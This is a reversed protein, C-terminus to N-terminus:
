SDKCVKENPPFLPIVNLLIPGSYGQEKLSDKIKDVEEEKLYNRKADVTANVYLEKGKRGQAHFVLIYTYSM